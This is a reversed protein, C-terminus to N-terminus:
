LSCPPLWGAFSKSSAARRIAVPSFLTATTVPASANAEHSFRASTSFTHSFQDSLPQKRSLLGFGAEQISEGKRTWESRTKAWLLPTASLYAAHAKLELRRTPGASPTYIDTANMRNSRGNMYIRQILISEASMTALRDLIIMVLRCRQISIEALNRCRM